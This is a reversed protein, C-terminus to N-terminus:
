PGPPVQLRLVTRSVDWVDGVSTSGRQGARRLGVTGRGHAEAWPPGGLDSRESRVSPALDCPRAEEITATGVKERQALLEERIVGLAQPTETQLGHKCTSQPEAACSLLHTRGRRAGCGIRILPKEQLEAKIGYSWPPFITAGLFRVGSANLPGLM